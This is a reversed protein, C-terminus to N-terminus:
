IHRRRSRPGHTFVPVLQFARATRAGTSTYFLVVLYGALWALWRNERFVPDM